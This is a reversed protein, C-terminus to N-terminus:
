GNADRIEATTVSCDAAKGKDAVHKAIVGITEAAVDSM